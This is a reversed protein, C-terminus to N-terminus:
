KSYLTIIEPYLHQIVIVVCYQVQVACITYGAAYLITIAILDSISTPRIDLNHILSSALRLPYSTIENWPRGQKQETQM